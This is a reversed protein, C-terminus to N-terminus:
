LPEYSKIESKESIEPYIRKLSEFTSYSFCSVKDVSSIFTRWSARWQDMDVRKVYSYKNMPICQRCDVVPPLSCKNGHKDLLNLSPCAPFFNHVALELNSGWATKLMMVKEFISEPSKWSVLENVLISEAKGVPLLSLIEDEDTLTFVTEHDACAAWLKICLLKEDYKLIMVSRSEALAKNAIRSSYLNAVGGEPESDIIVLPRSSPSLCLALYAANRFDSWREKRVHEELSPLCNPWRAKIIQSHRSNLSECTEQTFSGCSHHVVFLNQVLINRFGEGIARQCWDTEECYGRGFANEDFGGIRRWLDGNVGMCFGVGTPADNKPGIENTLRRFASDVAEVESVLTVNNKDPHPFSFFSAFNSFPTTSAINDYEFIPWMLRELWFRPVVTDTNLLAFHGDCESAARNVTGPFGLNEVNRLLLCDRLGATRAVLYPWVDPDTSADDVIVFRHPSITNAFISDFLSPLHRMGNFVPIIIDVPEQLSPYNQQAPNLLSLVKSLPFLFKSYKHLDETKGHLLHHAVPNMGSETVDPNCEVYKETCFSPSPDKGRPAGSVLYHIIPMKKGPYSHPGKSYWNADFLGSNRLTFYYRLNSLNKVARIGHKVKHFVKNFNLRSGSHHMLKEARCGFQTNPDSKQRFFRQQVGSGGLIMRNRLLIHLHFTLSVLKHSKLCVKEGATSAQKLRM